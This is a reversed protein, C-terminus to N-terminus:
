DAPTDGAEWSLWTGGAFAALVSGDVGLVRLDGMQTQEVAVGGTVMRPKARMGGCGGERLVVIIGRQTQTM